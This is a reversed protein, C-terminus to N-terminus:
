YAWALLPTEIIPRIYRLVAAADDFYYWEERGGPIYKGSGTDVVQECVNVCFQRRSRTVFVYGGRAFGRVKGQIRIGEDIDLARVLTELRSFGNIRTDTYRTKM